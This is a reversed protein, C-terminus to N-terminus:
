FLHTGPDTLCKLVLFRYVKLFLLSQFATFSVHTSIDVCMYNSANLSKGMLVLAHHRKYQLNISVTKILLTLKDFCWKNYKSFSLFMEWPTHYIKSFCVKATHTWILLALNSLVSQSTFMQTGRYQYASHTSSTTWLQSFWLGALGVLFWLQTHSLSVYDTSHTRQLLDCHHLFAHVGPMM